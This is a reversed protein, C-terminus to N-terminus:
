CCGRTQRGVGRCSHGGRVEVGHAVRLAKPLQDTGNLAQQVEPRGASSCRRSFRRHARGKGHSCGRGRSSHIGGAGHAAVSRGGFRLALTRGGFGDRWGRGLRGSGSSGSGSGRSRGRSPLGSFYRGGDGASSGRQATTCSRHHQLGGLRLGLAAGRACRGGPHRLPQPKPGRGRRRSAGEGALAPQGGRCGSCCLKDFLRVFLASPVQHQHRAGGLAGSAALRQHRM